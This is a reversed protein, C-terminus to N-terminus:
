GIKSKNKIINVTSGEILEPEFEIISPITIKKNKIQNLLSFIMEKRPIKITEISGPIGPSYDCGM